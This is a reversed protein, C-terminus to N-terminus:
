ANFDIPDALPDHMLAVARTFNSLCGKATMLATYYDIYRFGTIEGRAFAHSTIAESWTDFAANSIERYENATFGVMDEWNESFKLTTSHSLNKEGELPLSALFVARKVLHYASRHDPHFSGKWHGLVTDPRLERIYKAIRLAIDDSAELFGDRCDEFVISSAGINKCFEKHEYLKQIKYDQSSQKPNGLEGPTLALITAANGQEIEEILLPGCMLEADGIHAGVALIHM